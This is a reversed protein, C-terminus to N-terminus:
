SRNKGFGWRRGAGIGFTSRHTGSGSTRSDLHRPAIRLMLSILGAMGRQMEDVDSGVKAWM